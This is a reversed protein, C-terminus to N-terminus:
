VPPIEEYAVMYLDGLDIADSMPMDPGGAAKGLREIAADVDDTEMEYIACYRWKATEGASGVAKFRTAHVFDGIKLVDGLHQASYWANYADDNGATPNTMVLLKYRGM